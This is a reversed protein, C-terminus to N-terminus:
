HKIEFSALVMSATVQAPNGRAPRLTIETIAIYPSREQLRQYFTAFNKWDTNQIQLRLTNISFQGSSMAPGNGLRQFNNGMIGADNALQGVVVSLNAPDLTKAPDMHAVAQETVTKIQNSRALWRDQEALSQTTNHYARGFAIARSGYATGWLIVAIGLFGLLLLKERLVRSLFFARLSRIM